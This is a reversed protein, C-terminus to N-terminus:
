PEKPKEITQEIQVPSLVFNTFTHCVITRYDDFECYADVIQPLWIRVNRTRFQVPAYGVSLYWHWVNAAPIEEMLGTEMHMVEGSDTAIWARGKLSAPYVGSRGRFSLTRGRKNKRQQFRVVWASQREWETTSERAMEYDDQMNPLFMLAMEPLGMDETTAASLSSGDRPNRSEQVVLGELMQQFDVVYDFTGRGGDTIDGLHDFIEYSIDEQSTFNQLSDALANARTGAKELVSVLVCSPSSICSRVQSDIMPPSWQLTRNKLKKEIDKSQQAALLDPRGLPVSALAWAFNV